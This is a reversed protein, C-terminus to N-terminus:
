GHPLMSASMGMLFGLWSACLIFIIEVGHDLVGIWFNTFVYRANM